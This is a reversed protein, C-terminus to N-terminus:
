SRYGFNQASTIMHGDVHHVTIPKNIALLYMMPAGGCVALLLCNVLDM